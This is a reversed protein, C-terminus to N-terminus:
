QARFQAHCADCTARLEEIARAARDTEETRAAAAIALASRRLEEALNIFAERDAGEKHLRYRPLLDVLDALKGALEEVSAWNQSSSAGVLRAYTLAIEEMSEHQRAMSLMEMGEGHMPMGEMEAHGKMPTRDAVEERDGCTALLLLLPSMIIVLHGPSCLKM